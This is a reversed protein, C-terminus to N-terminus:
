AKEGRRMAPRSQVGSRSRRRRRTERGAPTVTSSSPAKKQQSYRSLTRSGAPRPTM